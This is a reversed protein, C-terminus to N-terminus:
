PKLRGEATLDQQAIKLIRDNIVRDFTFKADVLGGRKDEDLM